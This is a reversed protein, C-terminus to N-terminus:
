DKVEAFYIEWKQLFIDQQNECFLFSEDLVAVILTMAMENKCSSRLGPSSAYILYLNKQGSSGPAFKGNAGSKPPGWFKPLLVIELM